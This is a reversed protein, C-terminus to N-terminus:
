EPITSEPARCGAEECYKSSSSPWSLVTSTGLESSAWGGFMVDEDVDGDAVNRNFLGAVDSVKSRQIRRM